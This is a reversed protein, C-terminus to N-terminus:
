WASRLGPEPRSARSARRRRPDAAGRASQPTHLRRACRAARPPARPRMRALPMLCPSPTHIASLQCRRPCCSCRLRAGRGQADLRSGGGRVPVAAAAAEVDDMSRRPPIEFYSEQAPPPHSPEVLNLSSCPHCVPHPVCGLRRLAARQPFRTCTCGAARPQRAGAREAHRPLQPLRGQPGPRHQVPGPASLSVPFTRAPYLSHHQWWGEPQTGWRRACRPRQTPMLRRRRRARSRALTRHPRHCNHNPFPSLPTSAAAAAPPPVAAAPAGVWGRPVSLRGYCRPNQAPARGLAGPAWSPASPRPAAPARAQRAPPGPRRCGPQPPSCCPPLPTSHFLALWHFLFCPKM